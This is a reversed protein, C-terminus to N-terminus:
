VVLFTPERERLQRHVVVVIINAEALHAFINCLPHYIFGGLFKKLGYNVTLIVCHFCHPTTAHEAEQLRGGIGYYGVILHSKCSAQRSM